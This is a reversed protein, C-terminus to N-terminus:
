AFTPLTLILQLGATGRGRRVADFTAAWPLSTVLTVGLM